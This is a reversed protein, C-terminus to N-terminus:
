KEAALVADIAAEFVEFTRAGTLKRGNVFFTPTGKARNDLCLGRQRDVEEITAASDLDSEFREGDLGLTDAMTRMETNSLADRHLAFYDSVPWYQGQRKAAVLAQVKLQAGPHFPMPNHLVVYRVKDAYEDLIRDVTPATEQTYPCEPDICGLVTVPAERGTDIGRLALGTTDIDVPEETLMRNVTAEVGFEGPELPRFRFTLRGEFGPTYEQEAESFISELLCRALVESGPGQASPKTSTRESLGDVRSFPVALEFRAGPQYGASERCGPYIDRAVAALEASPVGSGTKTTGRVELGVGYEFDPEPSSATTPSRRRTPKSAEALSETRSREVDSPAIRSTGAATSPASATATQPVDSTQLATAGTATAALACLFIPATTKVPHTPETTKPVDNPLGTVVILAGLWHRRDGFRRDLQARLRCIGERVRWSATNTPCGQRLGIDRASLGEEFRLRLAEDYPPSLESWAVQLADLIQTRALDAELSSVDPDDRTAEERARRRRSARRRSHAENRIVRRVWAVPNLVPNRQAIAKLLADQVVDSGESGVLSRGLALLSAHHRLAVRTLANPSASM